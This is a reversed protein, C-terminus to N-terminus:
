RVMKKVWFKVDDRHPPVADAYLITLAVLAIYERQDDTVADELEHYLPEIVDLHSDADALVELCDAWGAGAYNKNHRVFSALAREAQEPMKREVVLLQDDSM